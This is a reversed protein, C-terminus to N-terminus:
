KLNQIDWIKITKDSGSTAVCKGNPSFAVSLVSGEHGSLTAIESFTEISWIKATGDLSSSAFYKGNSSISL